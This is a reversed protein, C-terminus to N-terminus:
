SGHVRKQDRYYPLIMDHFAKLMVGRKPSFDVFTVMDCGVDFYDDIAELLDKGTEVIKYNRLIEEDSIEQARREIVRPDPENYMKVDIVGAHLKKARKIVEDIKGIAGILLAIKHRKGGIKNASRAGDNYSKLIRDKLYRPEGFTILNFGREGAVFASKTGVASYYIPIEGVPKTYLFMKKMKFYKGRFDFYTKSKWLKLILDIGELLRVTRESWNPWFGLFRTENIAEGNGVGLM